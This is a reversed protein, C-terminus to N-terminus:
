QGLNENTQRYTYRYASPIAERKETLAVPADNEAAGNV